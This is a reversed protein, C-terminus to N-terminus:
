SCVYLRRDSVDESVTASCVLSIGSSWFFLYQFAKQSISFSVTKVSVMKVM